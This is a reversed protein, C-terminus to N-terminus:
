STSFADPYCSSASLTWPLQLLLLPLLLLRVGSHFGCLLMNLVGRLQLL